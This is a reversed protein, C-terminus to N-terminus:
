TLELTVDFWSDTMEKREQRSYNEKSDLWAWWVITYMNMYISCALYYQWVEKIIPFISIEM